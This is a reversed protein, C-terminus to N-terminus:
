PHAQCRDCYHTSRGGLYIRRIARGCRRCSAGARGYVALERQMSAGGGPADFTAIKSGRREVARALITRIARWLARSESVHLSGAAREPHIRARWLSEDAYINGIGAVLSQDLLLGKIRARPHRALAARFLALSWDPELPEPGISAFPDDGRLNRLAGREETAPTLRGFRRPDYLRLERGDSLPFILHEHRARAVGAATVRPAGTMRPAFILRRPGGAEVIILSKARRRVAGITFDAVWRNLGRPTIGVLLNAYGVQAGSITTGRILRHLDRAMTEVEPLEPM